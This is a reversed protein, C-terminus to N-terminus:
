SRAKRWERGVFWEKIAEYVHMVFVTIAGGLLSFVACAVLIAVWDPVDSFM